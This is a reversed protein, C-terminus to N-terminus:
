SSTTPLPLQELPEEGDLYAQLIIAASIADVKNKQLGKSTYKNFIFEKASTTSNREDMFYVPLQFNKVLFRALKRVKPTVKTETNDQNLPLGIVFATIQWEKILATIKDLDLKGNKVKLTDLPQATGILDQGIALGTSGTGYDIGLFYAM